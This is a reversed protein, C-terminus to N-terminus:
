NDRIIRKADDYVEKLKVLMLGLDNSTPINKLRNLVTLEKQTLSKAPHVVSMSMMEGDISLLTIILRIRGCFIVEVLGLFPHTSVKIDNTDVGSFLLAYKLKDVNSRSYKTKLYYWLRM